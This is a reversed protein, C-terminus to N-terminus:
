NGKMIEEKRSEYEKDSIKGQEKLCNLHQLELETFGNKGTLVEEETVLFYQTPNLSYKFKGNQDYAEVKIKISGQGFEEAKVTIPISVTEGEQVETWETLVTKGAKSNQIVGSAEFVAKAQAEPNGFKVHLNMKMQDRSLPEEIVDLNATIPPLLKGSQMGSAKGGESQSEMNRSCGAIALLCIFLVLCRKM